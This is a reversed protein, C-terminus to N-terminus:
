ASIVPYIVTPATALLSADLRPFPHLPLAPFTPMNLGATSPVLSKLGGVSAPSTPHLINSVRPSGEIVTMPHLSHSVPLGVGSSIRSNVSHLSYSSDLIVLIVLVQISNILETSQFSDLTRKGKSHGQSEHKRCKARRNQFWVQYYLNFLQVVVFTISQYM